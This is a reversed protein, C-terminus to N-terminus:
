RLITKLAEFVMDAYLHNGEASLHIGDDTLFRGLVIKRKKMM